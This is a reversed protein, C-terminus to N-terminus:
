KKFVTLNPATTHTIVMSAESPLLIPGPYPLNRTVGAFTFTLGTVTGGEVLAIVDTGRTNTYTFPSAGVAVVIAAPVADHMTGAGVNLNNSLRTEAGDDVLTAANNLKNYRVNLIMNRPASAVIAISNHNGGQLTNTSSNTDFTVRTATDCEVFSNSYGQCYIDPSGNAEFDVGILKNNSANPTLFIGYQSHGESTGGNFLNGLAVDAFIGTTLGELVPTDFVCYSCSEGALRSTLVAGYYPVSSGAPPAGENTSVTLRPFRTCVAFEVRLGARGTGCGEVKIDITSHHVSRVYVADLGGTAAAVIFRGFTVNYVLNSALGGADFVVAHGTGTCILRVEGEAVIEADQIAWNPSTAYKYTGSPFVLRPANGVGAIHNRANTLATTDDTVGDGKAGFHKVTLSATKALKWRGEDTAVIVTGGNDVTTFDTADYYYAGGGGDGAAYYGTVFANKSASTKLLARLATISAVVQDGGGVLSAGSSAALDLRLAAPNSINDQTWQIVGQANKLVFKYVVAPDLWLVCEGRADLSIPNTNAITLASDQWTTAPTTSGAIYTELTGGVMPVGNSSFQFKPITAIVGAM